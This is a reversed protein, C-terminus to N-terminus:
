IIVVGKPIEIREIGSDCFGGRGIKELRSGPAFVVSKLSKCECFADVCIEKVSAPIEVSEIASGCFWYNGIREIGEPITVHKCNRLDWVKVTGAMTEPLPCIIATCPM